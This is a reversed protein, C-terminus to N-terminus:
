PLFLKGRYIGSFLTKAGGAPFPFFIVSFEAPTRSGFILDPTVEALLPEIYPKLVALEYILNSNFMADAEEQFPFINMEEGRRVGPWLRLTAAAGHSRFQSDRVIRRILRNDTTPIRNHDDLNLQTLASVYVKFKRDKPVVQTLRENLGHIGEIIVPQDPRDM